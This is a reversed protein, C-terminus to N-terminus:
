HLTRNTFAENLNQQHEKEKKCQPCAIKSHGPHVPCEEILRPGRGTEIGVRGLDVPTM